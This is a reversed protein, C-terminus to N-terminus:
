EYENLEPTPNNCKILEEDESFIFCSFTYNLVAESPAKFKLGLAACTSESNLGGDVM